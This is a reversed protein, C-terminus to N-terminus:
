MSEKTLSKRELDERGRKDKERETCTYLNDKPIKSSKLSRLAVVDHACSLQNEFVLYYM